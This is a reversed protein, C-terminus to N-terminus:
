ACSHLLLLMFACAFALLSTRAFVYKANYLRKWSRTTLIEVVAKENCGLGKFAEYLMIADFEDEEMQARIYVNFIWLSYHAHAFLIYLVPM